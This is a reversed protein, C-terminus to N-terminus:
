ENRNKEAYLNNKIKFNEYEKDLKEFILNGIKKAGNINFHTYDDRVLPPNENAWKTMSGEGGMLQFLNIFASGTNRAYKEQARVLAALATDTKMETGYKTVKDTMSIVLFDANPFCKKLHNVVNTMRSAFWNYEGKAELKLVNTGFQLVILDYDFERQFANMLAMNYKGLSLGANGRLAFDDINVGNGSSFDIGYFPISDANNFQIKLERPWSALPLKNLIGVPKLPIPEITGDNTTITISAGSNDSRGYFLTPRALPLSASRYSTWVSTGPTAFSVYGSLGLSSPSKKSIFDSYTDWDPSSEYRISGNFFHSISNLPVFGIGQGGFKKQYNKRVDMVMLDSEIMSDGFYAIRVSGKKTEELTFLKQFFRHLGDFAAYEATETADANIGISLIILFTALFYKKKSELHKM